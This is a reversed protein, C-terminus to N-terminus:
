EFLVDVGSGCAGVVDLVVAMVIVTVVHFVMCGRIISVLMVVGGLFVVGVVSGCEEM